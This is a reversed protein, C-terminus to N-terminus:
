PSQKAWLFVKIQCIPFFWVHTTTRSVQIIPEYVIHMMRIQINKIFGKPGLMTDSQFTMRRKACGRVIVWSFKGKVIDADERAILGM